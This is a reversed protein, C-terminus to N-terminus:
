FDIALEKPADAKKEDKKEGEKTIAVEDSEPPFPSKVDKRLTMAYIDAQRNTAFNWEISSIQPAFDHNSVFYLYNGDPDWAPIGSDFYESTVKHAKADSASWIYISGFGNPNNM